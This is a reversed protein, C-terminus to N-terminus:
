KPTAGAFRYAAEVNGAVAYAFTEDFKSKYKATLAPVVRKKVEELSAGSSRAASVEAMLDRFYQKWLELREHGRMVDGHGPIAWEFDLRDLNELTRVWTLPNVEAIYPTDGALLDGTMVDKEGPLYVVADGPTHGEGLWMIEVRRAADHIVLRREFTVTPLAPHMTKFEEVAASWQEIRWRLAERKKEDTAAALDKRFQEIVEPIRQRWDALLPNGLEKTEMDRRASDSSIIEVDPFAAVFAQNGWYHDWHYHTNVLYRVPKATRRRIEAILARASSPTSAADVVLVSDSLEVFASNANDPKHPKAIAAWVGPVVPKIEFLEGASAPATALLLFIAMWRLKTMDM